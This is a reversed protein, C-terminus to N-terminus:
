RGCTLTHTLIAPVGKVVAVKFEAVSCGVAHLKVLHTGVPLVAFRRGTGVKVDDVFIDAFVPTVSIRVEGSDAPADAAVAIRSPAVIAEWLSTAPRDVLTAYTEAQTATLLARTEREAKLRAMEGDIAAKARRELTARRAVLDEGRSADRFDAEARLYASIAKGMAIDQARELTQLRLIQADSLALQQALQLVQTAPVSTVRTTGVAQARASSALMVLATIM